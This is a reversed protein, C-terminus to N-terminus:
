WWWPKGEVVSDVDVKKDELGQIWQFRSSEWQGPRGKYEICPSEVEEDVKKDERGQIWRCRTWQGKEKDQLWGRRSSKADVNAYVECRGDENTHVLSRATRPELSQTSGKVEESGRCSGPVGDEASPEHVEPIDRSKYEFSQNVSKTPCSRDKESRQDEVQMDKLGEDVTNSVDVPPNVEGHEIANLADVSPGEEVSEGPIGEDVREGKSL